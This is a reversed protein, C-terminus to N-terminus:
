GCIAALGRFSAVELVPLSEYRGPEMRDGPRSGSGILIRSKGIKVGRGANDIPLMSKLTGTIEVLRGEHEDRLKKILTRDGKLQYTIPSHLGPSEESALSTETSTLLAGDLCGKVIIDDGKKPVKPKAKEQAFVAPMVLAGALFTSSVIVALASLRRRM